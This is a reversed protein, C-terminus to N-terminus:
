QYSTAMALTTIRARCCRAATFGWVSEHELQHAKRTLEDIYRLKFTRSFFRDSFGLHLHGFLEDLAHGRFPLGLM